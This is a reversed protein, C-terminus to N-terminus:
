PPCNVIFFVKATIRAEIISTKANAPQPELAAVLLVSVEAAVVLSAVTESAGAVVESAVVESAAVESLVM